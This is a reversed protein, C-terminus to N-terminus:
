IADAFRYKSASIAAKLLLYWPNSDFILETWFSM